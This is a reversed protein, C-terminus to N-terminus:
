STVAPRQPSHNRSRLMLLPSAAVFDYPGVWTCFLFPYPTCTKWVVCEFSTCFWLINPEHISNVTSDAVICHNLQHDSQLLSVPIAQLSSYYYKTTCYYQIVIPHISNNRQIYHVTDIRSFNPIWIKRVYVLQFSSAKTTRTPLRWTHVCLITSCWQITWPHIREHSISFSSAVRSIFNLLRDISHVGLRRGGPSPFAVWWRLVLPALFM